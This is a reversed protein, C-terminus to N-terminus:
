GKADIDQLVNEFPQHQKGGKTGTTFIALV